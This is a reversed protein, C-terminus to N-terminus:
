DGGNEQALQDALETLDTDAFAEGPGMVQLKKALSPIDFLREAQTWGKANRYLLVVSKKAAEDDLYNLILPSHSTVMVQSPHAQLANVLTEVLEPNIGNEIEDFLVFRSKDSLAALIATLRLMGDNIHRTNIQYVTGGFLEEFVLERTKDETKVKFGDLHKYLHQLNERIARQTTPDLRSLYAALQRGGLGLDDSADKNKLRLFEPALLDYSKFSKVFDRFVQLSDDLATDALQSLVSGQYTFNIATQSQTEYEGNGIAKDQHITNDKVELRHLHTYIRETTCKMQETDFTFQWQIIQKQDDLFEVEFIIQNHECFNSSLDEKQWQRDDLWGQINGRVLQGLFDIMQLCTSKGSGNLGVLCTFDALQLDFGVLSKFGTTQIGTIKM